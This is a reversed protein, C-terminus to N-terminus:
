REYMQNSESCNCDSCLAAEIGWKGTKQFRLLVPVDCRGEGGVASDVKGQVIGEQVDAGGHGHDVM